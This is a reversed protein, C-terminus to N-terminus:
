FNYGVICEAVKTWENKYATVSTTPVYIKRNLLELSSSFAGENLSPPTVPKCYIETLCNCNRFAYEGIWTVSSPITISTLSSCGYFSNSQIECIIGEPITVSRLSTCGNFTGSMLYEISNSM